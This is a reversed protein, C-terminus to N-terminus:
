RIKKAGIKEKCIFRVNYVFYVTLFIETFKRLKRAAFTESYKKKGNFSM